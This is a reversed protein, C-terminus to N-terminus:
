SFNSENCVDVVKSILSVLQYISIEINTMDEEDIHLSNSINTHEIEYLNDEFSVLLTNDRFEILEFNLFEYLKVIEMKLENSIFGFNSNQQEYKYIFNKEFFDLYNKTKSNTQITPILAFRFPVAKELKFLVYTYQKIATDSNSNPGFHHNSVGTTFYYDKSKYNKYCWLQNSITGFVENKKFTFPYFRSIINFKSVSSSPAAIWKNRQATFLEVYERNLQKNSNIYEKYSLIIITIYLSSILVIRSIFDLDNLFFNFYYLELLVLISVLLISFVVALIDFLYNFLKYNSILKSNNYYIMMNANDKLVEDNDLPSIADWLHKARQKIDGEVKSTIQPNFKRWDSTIM